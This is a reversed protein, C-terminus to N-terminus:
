AATQKRQFEQISNKLNKYIESSQSITNLTTQYYHLSEENLFPEIYQTIERSVFPAGTRIAQNLSQHVEEEHESGMYRLLELMAHQILASDHYGLINQIISRVSEASVPQSSLLHLAAAKVHGDGVVMLKFALNQVEVSVLKQRVVQAHLKLVETKLAQGVAFHYSKPDTKPYNCDESSYCNLIQDVRSEVAALPSTNAPAVAQAPARQAKATAVQSRQAKKNAVQAVKQMALKSNKQSTSSWFPVVVAGLLGIVTLAVVKTKTM